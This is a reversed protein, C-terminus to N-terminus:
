PLSPPAIVAKRRIISCCGSTATRGAAIVDSLMKSANRFPRIETPM